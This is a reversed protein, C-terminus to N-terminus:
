TILTHVFNLSFIHFTHRQKLLAQENIIAHPLLKILCNVSIQDGPHTWGNKVGLVIWFIKVVGGM